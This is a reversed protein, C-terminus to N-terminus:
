IGTLSQPLDQEHALRNETHEAHFDKTKLLPQAKM